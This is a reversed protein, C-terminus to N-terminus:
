SLPKEKTELLEHDLLWLIGDHDAIIKLFDSVGSKDESKWRSYAISVLMSAFADRFYENNLDDKSWGRITLISGSLENIKECAEILFAKEEETERKNKKDISTELYVRKTAGSSPIHNLWDRFKLYREAEWRRKIKEEREVDRLNYEPKVPTTLSADTTFIIFEKLFTDIAKQYRNNSFFQIHHYLFEFADETKNTKVEWQTRDKYLLVVCDKKKTYSSGISIGVYLSRKQIDTFHLPRTKRNGKEDTWPNGKGNQLKL